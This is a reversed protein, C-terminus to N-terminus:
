YHNQTKCAPLSLLIGTPLHPPTPTGRLLNSFHPIPSTRLCPPLPPPPLMSKPNWSWWWNYWTSDWRWSSSSRWWWWWWSCVGLLARDETAGGLGWRGVAKLWGNHRDGGGGRGGGGGSELSGTSAERRPFLTQREPQLTHWVRKNLIITISM